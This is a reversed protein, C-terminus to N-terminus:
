PLTRVAHRLMPLATLANVGERPVTGMDLLPKMGLQDLAVRTAPETGASAAWWWASAGPAMMHALLAATTAGLGDFLVPTRRVASQALMGALVILGPTGARRLVRAASARDDKIRFMADRIYATKVRWANDDIGSGRGVIRVPEVNCVSGILAAATTTLGRGHDGLLLFDVGEDAQADAFDIGAQLAAEFDGENLADGVDAPRAQPLEATADIWFYEVGLEAATVKVQESFDQKGATLLSAEAPIPHDGGVVILRAAPAETGVCDALWLAARDLVARSRAVPADQM